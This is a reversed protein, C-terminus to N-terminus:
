SIKLFYKQNVNKRSKYSTRYHDFYYWFCRAKQRAKLSLSTFETRWKMSSGVLTAIRRCKCICIDGMNAFVVLWKSMIYELYSICNLVYCIRTFTGRKKHFCSVLGIVPRFETCTDKCIQTVMHVRTYGTMFVYEIEYDRSM